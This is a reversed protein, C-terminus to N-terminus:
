WWWEGDKQQLSNVSSLDSGAVGAPNKAGASLVDDLTENAITGLKNVGKKRSKLLNFSANPQAVPLNKSTQNGFNDISPVREPRIPADSSGSGYRDSMQLKNMNPLPLEDSAFRMANSQTPLTPLSPRRGRRKPKDAHTLNPESASSTRLVSTREPRKRRVNQKPSMGKPWMPNGFQDVPISVSGRLYFSDQKTEEEPPALPPLDFSVTRTPMSSRRGQRRKTKAEADSGSARREKSRTQETIPIGFKDVPQLGQASDGITSRKAQKRRRKQKTEAATVSIPIGYKDVVQQPPEFPKSPPDGLSSRRGQLRRRRVSSIQPIPIGFKDVKATDPSSEAPDPAPSDSSESSLPEESTFDLSRISEQRIPMIPLSSRRAQRRRNRPRARIMTNNYDYKGVVVDTAQEIIETSSMKDSDEYFDVEGYGDADYLSVTLSSTSDTNISSNSDKSISTGDGNGWRGEGQLILTKSPSLSPSRNHHLFDPHSTPSGTIIQFQSEAQSSLSKRRSCGWIDQLPSCSIGEHEYIPELPAGGTMSHRRGMKGMKKNRSKLQM